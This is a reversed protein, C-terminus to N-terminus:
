RGTLYDITGDPRINGVVVGDEDDGSFVLDGPVDPDPLVEIHEVWNHLDEVTHKQAETM